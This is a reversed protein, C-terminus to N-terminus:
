NRPPKRTASDDLCTGLLWLLKPMRFYGKQQGALFCDQQPTYSTETYTHRITPQCSVKDAQKQEDPRM